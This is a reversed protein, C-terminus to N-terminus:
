LFDGDTWDAVGIDAVSDQLKASVHEAGGADAIEDRVARPLTRAARTGKAVVVGHWDHESSFNNRRIKPCDRIQM